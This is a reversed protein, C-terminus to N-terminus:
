TDQRAAERIVKNKSQLPSVMDAYAEHFHDLSYFHTYTPFTLLPHMRHERKDASVCEFCRWKEMLASASSKKDLDILLAVTMHDQTLNCYGLYDASVCIM